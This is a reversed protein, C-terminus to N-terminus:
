YVAAIIFASLVPVIINYASGRPLILKLPKRAELGCLLYRVNHLLSM